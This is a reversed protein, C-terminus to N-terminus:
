VREITKDHLHYKTHCLEIIDMQHSIVVVLSKSFSDLMNKVVEKANKEDLGTTPEDLIIIPAQNLLARALIIRKKQGGSILAGNDGVVTKEKDPLENVFGFLNVKKLVENFTNMDCEQGLVINNYVTDNLLYGDQSIYCVQNFLENKDVDKSDIGGYSISGNTPEWFGVLLKCFTSKGSGSEGFVGYTNGMNLKVNVDKLVEKEGYSFGMNNCIILTGDVKKGKQVTEMDLYDIIKNLSPKISGYEFINQLIVGFPSLLGGYYQVYLMLVGITIREQCVEYGGIAIIVVTSLMIFLEILTDNKAEIMEIKKEYKKQKVLKEQFSDYFYANKRFMVIEFLHSTYEKIAAIFALTSERGKNANKELVMKAKKQLFMIIPQIVLAVILLKWEVIALFIILGVARFLSLLSPMFLGNIVGSVKSSDSLLLTTYESSDTFIIKKGKQSIINDFLNSKIYIDVSNSVIKSVLSICYNVILGIVNILVYLLCLVVGTKFELKTLADVIKMYLYAGLIGMGSSGLLLCLQLLLCGKNRKIIEEWFKKENKDV